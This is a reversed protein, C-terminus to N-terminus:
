PPPPDGAPPIETFESSVTLGDAELNFFYARTRPPLMASVRVRGGDGETRAPLSNWVRRGTFGADVTHFLVARRLSRENAFEAFALEGEQGQRTMRAWPAGGDVIARAFAYSDPPGWGATHSHGMDPLVAVMRPGAAARYTAQQMDLPFHADRLWTLWLIPQTSRPLRLMPEWVERYTANDRLARGYQNEGLSLAGCGYTPIAFAFRDDIGIATSTVIGGWSIGVLGIRREDVEPRSRLWSHALVVDAVAHYMWQDALDESADGYIGLRAPGAWAHREWTKGDPARRDTQGEVAISIAAFGHENWRRVWDTYATGGGGHVLVVGPVRGTRGEPLGTWAFFRTPKGHYDPGEIFIPELGAVAAIGEADFVRPPQTLRGLAELRARARAFDEAGMGAQVNVIAGVWLGIWFSRRRM